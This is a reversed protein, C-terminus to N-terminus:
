VKSFFATTCIATEILSTIQSQVTNAQPQTRHFFGMTSQFVPDLNQTVPGIQSIVANTGGGGGGGGGGGM